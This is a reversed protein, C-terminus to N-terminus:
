ANKNASWSKGDILYRCLTGAIMTHGTPNPHVPEPCFVEPHRNRLLSQFMDHLPLFGTNHVRAMKRTAAQFPVLTKMVTNRISAAATDRTIYFPELLLIKCKPLLRQTRVLLEDYIETYREPSVKRPNNTAYGCADNIGILVSVVDPQHNIVDDTWREQLEVITHGGVGKNLVTFHERPRHYILLDSFIKVYGEGWVPHPEYRGCATISDGIFLITQKNRLTIVSSKVRKKTTM